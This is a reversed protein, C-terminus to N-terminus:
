TGEQEALTMMRKLEALAHNRKRAVTFRSLGLVDAIENVALGQDYRLAIIEQEVEPLRSIMDGLEIGPEAGHPDPVNEDLAVAPSQQARHRDTCLNRAITFLYALPKGRDAYKSASRVFRLFVEQTLDQADERSGTHRYCYRMVEDYHQAVFREADSDDTGYSCPTM